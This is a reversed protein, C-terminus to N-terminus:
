SAGNTLLRKASQELRVIEKQQAQFRQQQRLSRTQKHYAYESYNGPYHVLHGDELEVIEDVVLDMLFRDHSVIIVGGTYSRIFEELFIKRNIDLHNDPEDLLLLDPRSMLLKALGLLKKQGGSLVNIPLNMESESFGMSFLTARVNGEFGSGGLETYKELLKEQRELERTLTNENSYVAPDSLKNEVQILEKEVQTLEPIASMVESLVDHGNEFHLEQPLYGIDLAKSHSIFGADNTLEGAILKLLTSKGCGNPGILGVCRGNHIKWTVNQFVPESAYTFSVQDLHTAIMNIVLVKNKRLYL